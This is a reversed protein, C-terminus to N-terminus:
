KGILVVTSREELTYKKQDTLQRESGPAFIDDPSDKATDVFLHWKKAPSPLPLLFLQKKVASNTMLYIDTDERAPLLHFALFNNPQNWGPTQLGPNYWVIEHNGNSDPLFYTRRRLAAHKKRFQILYKFFRFQAANKQLLNWDLWSIENDQCYANNNGQQTRGFEDGALLMPIGQAMMLLTAMNKIQKKRLNSIQARQSPGEKGYNASFNENMGDRNDEGNALNRKRSFTVLDCLTFGDHCTVYNISNLPSRGNYQYLDSSGALRTALDPVMYQDGRVFRRITDRIKDNWEAWRPGGPFAGVQYLGAADWAEAILKVDSLLPDKRIKALLPPDPHVSGDRARSLVPALDFRFGDVHMTEVWYRLSDIIMKQVLPHNCNVTNGCGTFNQNEGKRNLMYYAKEDLGRFSFLPGDAPGEGTHNYVVDLIIELGAEHFSRVMQKFENVAAGPSDDSAYSAKPAFYGLPDYGWFNLLREGTLPNKRKVLTEDFEFMPLLEVTTIGLSKLYPIKETLGPYTGPYTVDSSPHRTYGRVHLEYIVTEDAPIRPRKDGQWDFPQDHYLSRKRRPNKKRGWTEGGCYIRAYPDNLWSPSLGRVFGKQSGDRYAYAFNEPLGEVALYWINKERQKDPNLLIETYSSSLPGNFILLSLKEVRAHVSFNVTAGRRSVGLPQPRGTSVILPGLPSQHIAKIPM